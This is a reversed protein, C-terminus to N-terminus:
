ILTARPRDPEVNFGFPFKSFAGLPKLWLNQQTIVGSGNPIKVVAAHPLNYPWYNTVYWEPDPAYRAM